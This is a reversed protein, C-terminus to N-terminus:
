DNGADGQHMQLLFFCVTFFNTMKLFQRSKQQQAEFSEERSAKDVLFKEYNGKHHYMKGGELELIHNCIRDLFYRDHTVM